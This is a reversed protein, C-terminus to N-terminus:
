ATQKQKLMKIARERIDPIPDKSLEMIVEIPASYMYYAALFGRIGPEKDRALIRLLEPDSCASENWLIGARVGKNIDTVLIKLVELPTSKNRSVSERISPDEEESLKTLIDPPTSTNRAVSLRVNSEIDESLKTLIETPTIKNLSVCERINIDKDKALINLLELPASKHEAIYKRVNIDKDRAIISSIEFPASKNLAVNQRVDPDQNKALEALIEPPTSENGAINTDVNIYPNKLLESIIIPNLKKSKSLMDLTMVIETRMHENTPKLKKIVKYYKLVDEETETNNAIKASLAMPTTKAIERIRNDIQKAENKYANKAEETSGKSSRWDGYSGASTINNNNDKNVLFHLRQLQDPKFFIIFFVMNQATCHDWMGRNKWAICWPGGYYSASLHDKLHRVIFNSSEYIIPANTIIHKQM